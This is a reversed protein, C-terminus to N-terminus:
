ILVIRETDYRSLAVLWPPQVRIRKETHHLGVDCHLLLRM